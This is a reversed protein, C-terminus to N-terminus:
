QQRSLKKETTDHMIERRLIPINSVSCKEETNYHVATQMIERRPIPANYMASKIKETYYHMVTQM